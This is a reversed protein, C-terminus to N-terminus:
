TRDPRADDDPVDREHRDCQQDSQHDSAASQHSPVLAIDVIPEGSFDILEFQDDGLAIRDGTRGVPISCQQELCVQLPHKGTVVGCEERQNVAFRKAQAEIRGIVEECVGGPDFAPSRDDLTFELGSWALCSWGAAQRDRHNELTIAAGEHHGHERSVPALLEVANESRERDDPRDRQEHRRKDCQRDRRSDNPRDSLESNHRTRHAIVVEACPNRHLTVVFESLQRGREIRHHPPEITAKGGLSFEEVIDCVFQARRDGDDLAMQAQEIVVRGLPCLRHRQEVVFEISHVSIDALQQDERLGVPGVKKVALADVEVHEGITQQRLRSPDCISRPHEVLSRESDSFQILLSDGLRHQVQRVIRSTVGLHAVLDANRHSAM